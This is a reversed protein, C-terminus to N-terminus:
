DWSFETVSRLGLNREQEGTSLANYRSYGVAREPSFRDLTSEPATHWRASDIGLAPITLM